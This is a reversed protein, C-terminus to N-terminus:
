IVGNSCVESGKGWFLKAHAFVANTKRGPPRRLKLEAELLVASDFVGVGADAKAKRSRPPPPPSRNPPLERPSGHGGTVRPGVAGLAGCGELM